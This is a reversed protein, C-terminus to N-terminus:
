YYKYYYKKIPAQFPNQGEHKLAEDQRLTHPTLLFRKRIASLEM